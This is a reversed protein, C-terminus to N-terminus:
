LHAIELDSWREALYEAVLRRHCRDATPESCLLVAGGEFRTRDSEEIRREAMLDLFADAFPEWGVDGGRYGKLLDQTPALDPRHEYDAGVLERLFFEIDGAKSFGALQSRNNLRIDLLRTVGADRLRGFFDEASSRTFGITYLTTM